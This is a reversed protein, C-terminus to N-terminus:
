AAASMPITTVFTDLAQRQADDCEFRIRTGGDSEGLVKFPLPTPLGGGLRLTGREGLPLPQLGDLRAGGASIDVIRADIVGRGAMEIRCPQSVQYRRFMRRDVEKTSTRVTRVMVRKLEEIAGNLVKTGELVDNAYQGAQEAEQFVETNRASMENVASATETVNRAIEATAAGQQEVAAAISGAIENVKGITQEIRNVATVAATTAARVEGIHRTIEETSRATQSALQKVEGAVVAFGKGAEGARAAEITANLALLNTKSAIDGIIDVVAGIRGVRENLAEITARTESGAEVAQNVVLTSQSVQGSIEHISAALEEAASAVTQANGLAVSAAGVASQASAGARGALAQMQNATATMTTTRESIQQVAGTAESEIKEAMQTLAGRKEEEARTREEAQRDRIRAAEILSDKFAQVAKVLTGLEDRRNDAPVPTDLKGAVLGEMSRTIRIIPRAISGGILVCLIGVIVVVAVLALLVAQQIADSFADGEKEAASAAASFEVELANLRPEIEKFIASMTKAAAQQALIGAMVRAFMDQYTTMKVLIADQTARPVGAEALAAIFEPLRAKFDAGYKPDQRAIFDKEYRRMSLFAVRATPVDITGLLSETDRANARVVDLMGQNETLGVARATDVLTAFAAAYRGMDVRVQELKALTEPQKAVLTRFEAITTDISRMSDAHEAVYNEQKFLMFEKEHLRVQLMSIQLRSELSNAHRAVAVRATSLDIQRNGWWDLGAVLLMGIVGVVGLMAIQCGIRCRTMLAGM